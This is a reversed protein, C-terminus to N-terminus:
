WGCLQFIKALRDAKMGAQIHLKIGQTNEIIIMDTNIASSEENAIITVPIFKNNSIKNKALKSRAYSFTNLKLGLRKCYQPQTEQSSEWEAIITRWKEMDLMPQKIIKQESMHIEWTFYPTQV